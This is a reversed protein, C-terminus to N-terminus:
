SGQKYSFFLEILALDANNMKKSIRVGLGESRSYSSDLPAAGVVGESKM